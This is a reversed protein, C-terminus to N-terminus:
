VSIVLVKIQLVNEYSLAKLYEDYIVLCGQFLFTRNKCFNIPTEDFYM